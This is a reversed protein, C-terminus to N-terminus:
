NYNLTISKYDIEFQLPQNILVPPPTVIVKNPIFLTKNQTAEFDALKYDTFVYSVSKGEYFITDKKLKQQVIKKYMAYLDLDLRLGDVFFTDSRATLHNKIFINKNKVKIKFIEFGLLPAVSTEVSDKFVTTKTKVKSLTSSNNLYIHARITISELNKKSFSKSSCGLFFLLCFFIIKNM